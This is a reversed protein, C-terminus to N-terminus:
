LSENITEKGKKDIEYIKKAKMIIAGARGYNSYNRDSKIEVIADNLSGDVITFEDVGLWLIIYCERDLSMYESLM